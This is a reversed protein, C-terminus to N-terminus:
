LSVYSLKSLVINKIYNDDNGWNSYESGELIIIKNDVMNNEDNFFLVSLTVSTFLELSVVRIKINTIQSIKTLPAKQIPVDFTNM